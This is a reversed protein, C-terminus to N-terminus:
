AGKRRSLVLGALALGILALTAPEPVNTETVVVNDLTNYSPDNQGDFTITDSGTATGLTFTYSQYGTPAGIYTGAVAVNDYSVYQFGANSGFDFSVTLLGGTDAFTQSLMGTSEVAGEHFGNSDTYYCCSGVESWGALGSLFNGNTVLNAHASGLVFFLAVGILHLKKIM